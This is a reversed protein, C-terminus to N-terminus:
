AASCPSFGPQQRHVGAEDQGCGRLELPAGLAGWGWCRAWPSCQEERRQTPRVRHVHAFVRCGEWCGSWPCQPPGLALSPGLRGQAAGGEGWSKVGTEPVAGSGASHFAWFGLSGREKVLPSGGKRARHPRFSLLPPVSEGLSQFPCSSLCRGLSPASLSSFHSRLSLVRLFPSPGRPVGAENVFDSVGGQGRM